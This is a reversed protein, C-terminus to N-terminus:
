WEIMQGEFPFGHNDEFFALFDTIGGFGDAIALDTIQSWSLYKLNIRVSTKTIKINSVKKCVAEGLSRCYKTRMGTYLFLKDGEKFPRKRTSRITQRKKKASVDHAFQKKFNLAPM